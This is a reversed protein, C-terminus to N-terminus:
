FLTRNLRNELIELGILLRRSQVIYLFYAAANSALISFSGFFFTSFFQFVMCSCILSAFRCIENSGEIKHRHSFTSLSAKSLLFPFFKSLIFPKIVSNFANSFFAMSFSICTAFKFLAILLRPFSSLGRAHYMYSFLVNSFVKKKESFFGGHNELTRKEQM